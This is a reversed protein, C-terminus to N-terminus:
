KEEEGRVERTTHLCPLSRQGRNATLGNAFASSFVEQRKLRGSRPNGGRCSDTLRCASRSTPISRPGIKLSEESSRRHRATGPNTFPLYFGPSYEYSPPPFPRCKEAHRDAVSLPLISQIHFPWSNHKLCLGALLM